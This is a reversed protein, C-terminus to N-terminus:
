LFGMSPIQSYGLSLFPYSFRQTEQQSLSKISSLMQNQDATQTITPFSSGFVSDTTTTPFAVSASEADSSTAFSKEFQSLSATQEFNPVTSLKLM